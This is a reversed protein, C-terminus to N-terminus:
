APTGASKTITNNRSVIYATSGDGPFFPSYAADEILEQIPEGGCSFKTYVAPDVPVPIRTITVNGTLGDFAQVIYLYGSAYNIAGGRKGAAAALTYQNTKVFPSKTAIVLDQQPDGGDTVYIKDTSTAVVSGLLYPNTSTFTIESWASMFAAPDIKEIRRASASGQVQAYLYVYLGDTSWRSQVGIAYDQLFYKTNTVTFTTASIQSVFGDGFNPGVAARRGKAYINTGQVLVGLMQHNAANVAVSDIISAYGAETFTSIAIRVVRLIVHESATFGTADFSAVYLYTGDTALQGCTGEVFTLLKTILLDGVVAGTSRNYRRITIGTGVSNFALYVYNTDFTAGVHTGTPPSSDVFLASVGSCPGFIWNTIGCGSAGAPVRTVM